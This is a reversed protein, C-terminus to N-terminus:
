STAQSDAMENAEEAPKQQVSKRVSWMPVLLLASLFACGVLAIFVGNWGYHHSLIGFPAAGCAAGAYGFWGAFGTATGAAKKHSMEAAAIGILMQPGFIFFGVLFMGFSALFYGQTPCMWLAAFGFIVLLSFLISIPVRRGQFMRDSGVGALLIGLFGGAEFWFLATGAAINSFGKAEILFFMGWDNVVTRIIYVFFYSFSLLWILKNNLVHEFLREKLTLEREPESGAKPDEKRYKEIPPLGLSQPTDRLTYVMWLGILISLVGPVFMGMRWGFYQALFPCLVTILAAGSNHSTSWLSWWSGRENQSYWHTLLRACPPWGWGQFMGNLFWIVSFFLMSSAFGFVINLVGTIILGISMFYRPNSRDSIIGSLFKSLGYSIYIITGFIGVDVKTLSLDQMMTPLVFNLSKRTFYYFAYGIYMGFFIRLRWHRYKQKVVAEDCIEDIPDATKFFSLLSV